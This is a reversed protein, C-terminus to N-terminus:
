GPEIALAQMIDRLHDRRHDARNLRLTRGNQAIGAALAPSLQEIARDIAMACSVALEAAARPAIALCHLRMAENVVDVDMASVGIGEQTWKKLLVLARQDWFALHALVAAVTWGAEMSHALQEDTLGNVLAILREREVTNEAIYTRDTSM